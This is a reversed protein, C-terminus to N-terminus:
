NVAWLILAVELITMLTIELAQEAIHLEIGKIQEQTLQLGNLASIEAVSLNLTNTSM